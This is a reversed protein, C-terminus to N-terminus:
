RRQRGVRVRNGMSVHDGGGGVLGQGTRATTQDEGGSVVFIQVLLEVGGDERTTLTARQHVDDSTLGDGEFLRQLGLELSILSLHHLVGLRHSGGKDLATVLDDGATGVVM